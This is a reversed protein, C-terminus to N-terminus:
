SEVGRELIALVKELTGLIACRMYTTKDIKLRSARSVIRAHDHPAFAITEKKTLRTRQAKAM